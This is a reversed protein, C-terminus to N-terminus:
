QDKSSLSPTSASSADNTKERAGVFSGTIAKMQDKLNKLNITPRSVVNNRKFREIAEKSIEASTVPSRVVGGSKGQDASNNPKEKVDAVTM